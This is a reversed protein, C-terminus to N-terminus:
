QDPPESAKSRANGALRSALQRSIGLRRGLESATAGQELALNFLALRLSHRASEFEELTEPMERHRQMAGDMANFAELVSEGALVRQALDAIARENRVLVERLTISAETLHGIEDVLADRKTTM